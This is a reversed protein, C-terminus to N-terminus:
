LNEGSPNLAFSLASFAASTSDVAVVLVVAVAVARADADSAVAPLVAFASQGQQKFVFLIQKKLLVVVINVTTIMNNDFIILVANYLIFQTQPTHTFSKYISNQIIFCERNVTQERNETTKQTYGIHM